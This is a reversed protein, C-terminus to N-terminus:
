TMASIEDWSWASRGGDVPLVAGTIFSARPSLLFLIAEAVESPTGRRRLAHTAEFEGRLRDGLEPDLSELWAQSRESAIGGPAIANVRIGHEGCDAATARTLGELAAKSIGYATYNPAPFSAQISSMNVIAGATGSHLFRQVAIGTGVIAACMNVDLTRRMVALSTDRFSSADFNAANNVWGVLRAKAEALDAAHVLTEESTVDGVCPVVTAMRADALERLADADLDVAVVVLGVDALRDVTARGIGAAAGTVVVSGSRFDTETLPIM